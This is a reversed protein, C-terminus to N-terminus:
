QLDRPLGHPVLVLVGEEQDIGAFAFRSLIGQGLLPEAGSPSIIAHVNTLARCGPLIIERIIVTRQTVESGDALISTIPPGDADRKTLYGGARLMSLFGGPIVLDGTFGTDIAFLIVGVRNIIVGAWFSKQSTPKIIPVSCRHPPTKTAIAIAMDLARRVALASPVSPQQQLHQAHAPAAVLLAALALPILRTLKPIRHLTSLGAMPLNPSGIHGLAGIARRACEGADGAAAGLADRRTASSTARSRGGTSVTGIDWSFM